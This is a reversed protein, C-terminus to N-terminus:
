FPPLHLVDGGCTLLHLQPPQLLEGVVANLHQGVSLSSVADAAVDQIYLGSLVTLIYKYIYYLHKKKEQKLFLNPQSLHTKVNNNFTM